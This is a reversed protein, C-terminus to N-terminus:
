SSEECSPRRCACGAVADEGQEAGVEGVGAAYFQNVLNQESSSVAGTIPIPTTADIKAAVDM